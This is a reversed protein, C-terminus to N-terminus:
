AFVSESNKRMLRFAGISGLLSLGAWVSMPLPVLDVSAILQTTKNDTNGGYVVFDVNEGASLVVDSPGFSSPTGTQANGPDSLQQMYAQSNGVYVYATPANNGVQVTTFTSSIDYKGTTLATYRVVTPGNFPGLNTTGGVFLISGFDPATNVTGTSYIVNPDSSDDLIKWEELTPYGAPMTLLGFQTFNAPNLAASTYYGYSWGGAGQVSFDSGVAGAQAVSALGCVGSTALVLAQLMKKNKM